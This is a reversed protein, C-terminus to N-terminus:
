KYKELSLLPRPRNKISFLRTLKKMDSIEQELRIFCTLIELMELNPEVGFYCDSNLYPILWRGGRLCGCGIDLVMSSPTLGFHTLIVLQNEGADHFDNKSGGSFVGSRDLTSYIRASEERSITLGM